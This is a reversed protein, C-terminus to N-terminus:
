KSEILESRVEESYLGLYNKGRFGGDSTPAAGYYEDYKTAYILRRKGTDILRRALIPNQTYRARLAELLASKRMGERWEPREEVVMGDNKQSFNSMGRRTGWYHADKPAWTTLVYERFRTRTCKKWTLYHEISPFLIMEGDAVEIEFPTAYLTTLWNYKTSKMDFQIEDAM